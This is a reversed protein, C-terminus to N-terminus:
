DRRRTRRIAVVFLGLLGLGPMAPGHSLCGFVPNDGCLSGGDNPEIDDAIAEADAVGDGDSDVQDDILQTYAAALGATNSGGTLGRAVMATGFPQVVTGSGGSNTSHCVTCAPECSSGSLSQLESPYLSSGWAVSALLVLM